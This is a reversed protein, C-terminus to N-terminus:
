GIKKITMVAPRINSADICYNETGSTLLRINGGSSNTRYFCSASAGQYQASSSLSSRSTCEFIQVGLLDNWLKADVIGGFTQMRFQVKFNIEYFSNAALIISSFLGFATPTFNWFQTGQFLLTTNIFSIPVDVGAFSCTDAIRSMQIAPIVTNTCQCTNWDCSFGTGNTQACQENQYCTAGPELQEVCSGSVCVSHSCPNLLDICNEDIVCTVNADVPPTFVCQCTTWSCTWSASGHILACEEDHACDAGINLTENCRGMECDMFSCQNLIVPCNEETVCTSNVMAPSVFDCDCSTM